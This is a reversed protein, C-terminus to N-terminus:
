SSIFNLSLQAIGPIKAIRERQLQTLEANADAGHELLVRAVDLHEWNSARSFKTFIPNCLCRLAVHLSTSNNKDRASVDASHELIVRAVEVHGGRSALHLPTFNNKDRANADAGHELLVRAVEM